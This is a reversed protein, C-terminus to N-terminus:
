LVACTTTFWGDRGWQECQTYRNPQKITHKVNQVRKHPIHCTAPSCLSQLEQGNCWIIGENSSILTIVSTYNM